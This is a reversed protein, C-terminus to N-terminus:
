ARPSISRVSNSSFRLSREQRGSDRRAEWRSVRHPGPPERDTSGAAHSCLELLVSRDTLVGVLNDESLVPLDTLGGTAMLQVAEMLPADIDVFHQEGLIEGAAIDGLLQCRSAVLGRQLTACTEQWRSPVLVDLVDNLRVCGLFAEDRGYVLVVRRFQEIFNAACPSSSRIRWCRSSEYRQMTRTCARIRPGRVMLEAIRKEECPTGGGPAIAASSCAKLRM